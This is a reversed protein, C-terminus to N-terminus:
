DFLRCQGRDFLIHGDVEVVAHLMGASITDLQSGLHAHMLAPGTRAGELRPDDATPTRARPNMGGHWSDLMMAQEGYRARRAELLHELVAKHPGSGRLGVIRSDSITVTVPDEWALNDIENVYQVCLRGEVGVVGVPSYVEGPFVRRKRLSDGAKGFFAHAVDTAAAIRGSLRTGLDTTISWTQAGAMAEEIRTFLQRLERWDFRADPASMAAGDLCYNHIEVIERKELARNLLIRSVPGNFILKDSGPIAQALPAPLEAAHKDLPDIWVTDCAAGASRAAQEISAVLWPDIKGRVNVILVREGPRVEACHRILNAVGERVLDANM